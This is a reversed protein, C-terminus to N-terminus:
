NKNKPMRCLLGRWLTQLSHDNKGICSWDNSGRIKTTLVYCHLYGIVLPLIRTDGSQDPISGANSIGVKVDTATSIGGLYLCLICVFIVARCFIFSFYVCSSFVCFWYLTWSVFCVPTLLEGGEQEIQSISPATPPHNLLHIFLMPLYRQVVRHTTCSTSLWQATM